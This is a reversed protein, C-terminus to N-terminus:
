YELVYNGKFNWPDYLIKEEPFVINKNQIAEQTKKYEDPDIWWYIFGTGDKSVVTDIMKLYRWHLFRASYNSVISPIFSIMKNLETDFDRLIRERDKQELSSRYQEILTDIAPNSTGTCNYTNPKNAWRSNYYIDLTEPSPLVGLGIGGFKLNWDCKWIKDSYRGQEVKVMNMKIGAQKLDEQMLTLTQVTRENGAIFEFDFELRKGEANKRIGDVDVLNYGMEDLLKAGKNPDYKRKILDKSEFNTFPFYSDTLTVDGKYLAVSKERNWIYAFAERFRIDDFPKRTMNFELTLGSRPVPVFYVKRLILNREMYDFKAEKGFEKFWENNTPSFLETEGKKFREKAINREVVVDMQIDFNFSNKFNPYKSGWWNKVRTKIFYENNKINEPTIEYPGISPLVTDNYRTLYDAGSILSIYHAPLISIGSAFLQPTSWDKKYQDKVITVKVIYPSIKEFNFRSAMDNTYPDKIGEDGWLKWTAIVDDATLPTGDSWRANPDLRFYMGELLEGQKESKIFKWHTALMPEYEGLISDFGLLPLYLWELMTYSSSDTGEGVSRFTNPFSNITTHYVGGKLAKPSSYDIAVRTVYGLKEAIKEFGIGGDEAKVDKLNSYESKAFEDESSIMTDEKKSCSFVFALIIVFFIHKM